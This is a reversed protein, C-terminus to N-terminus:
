RQFIEGSLTRRFTTVAVITWIILLGFLSTLGVTLFFSNDFISYLLGTSVVFTGLPFTFAWWSMAFSLREWRHHMLTVIIALILWFFAFGWLSVSTMKAVISFIQAIEDPLGMFARIAPVLKIAIIALIATPTIGIWATPALHSPLLEHFLYRSFVASGVFIYLLVGIGLAILSGFLFIDGWVTGAYITILSSGLVPLILFSVPPILWGLNASHWELDSKKFYVSLFTLAFAAIGISGLVWLIRMAAHITEHSLFLPGAKELAIGWVVLSIPMTPFFAASVPHQFDERVAELCCSWRWLWPISILIFLLASVSLFFLQLFEAWPIHDQFIFIAIVIVATGMVSAYWGPSFTRVIINKSKSLNTSM